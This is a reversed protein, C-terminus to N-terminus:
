GFGDLESLCSAAVFSAAQQPLNNLDFGIVFDRPQPQRRDGYVSGFVLAREVFDQSDVRDVLLCALEERIKLSLLVRGLDLLLWL